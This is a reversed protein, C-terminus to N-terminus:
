QWTRTEEDLAARINMIKRLVRDLPANTGAAIIQSIALYAPNDLSWGRRKMEDMNWSLSKFGSKLKRVKSDLVPSFDFVSWVAEEYKPAKKEGQKALEIM